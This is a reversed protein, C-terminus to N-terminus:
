VFEEEQIVRANVVEDDRNIRRSECWQRYSEASIRLSQYHTQGSGVDIVDFEGGRCLERVRRASLGLKKAVESVRFFDPDLKRDEKKSSEM